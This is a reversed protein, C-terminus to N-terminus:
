FHPLTYQQISHFDNLKFQKSNEQFILFFSISPFISIPTLRIIRYKIRWNAKKKVAVLLQKNCCSRVCLYTYTYKFM